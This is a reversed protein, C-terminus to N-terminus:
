ADAPPWILVDQPEAVHLLPEGEPALGPPVLGEHEVIGAGTSLLWPPHHIEIRSVRGSARPAFLRYREVLFEDLSGRAAPRPDGSPSYRAELRAPAYGPETRRIAYRRVLGDVSLRGRGHRYPLGLLRASRVAARSTAELSFFLIGPDGDRRVYTRTNTELFRGSGPLPPLGRLHVARMEFPAITIWARGDWVDPELGAPILPELAGPDVSWHAFLLHEWTQGMIWPGRPLPYPRHARIALASRQRRLM